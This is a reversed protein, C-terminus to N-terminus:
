VLIQVTPVSSIAQLHLAQQVTYSGLNLDEAVIHFIGAVRHVWFGM